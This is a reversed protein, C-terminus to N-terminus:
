DFDVLRGVSWRGGWRIADDSSPTSEDRTTSVVQSASVYKAGECKAQRLWWKAQSGRLALLNQCAAM